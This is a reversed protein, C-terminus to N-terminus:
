QSVVFRHVVPCPTIVRRIIGFGAGGGFRLERVGASGGGSAGGSSPFPLLGFLRGGVGRVPLAATAPGGRRTL